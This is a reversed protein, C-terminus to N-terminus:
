QRPDPANTLVYKYRTGEILNPAFVVTGVYQTAMEANDAGALIRAIDQETSNDVAAADSGTWAGASHSATFKYLVGDYIVLDGAAYAQSTSFERAEKGMMM